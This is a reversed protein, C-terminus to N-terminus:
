HHLDDNSSKHGGGNGQNEDIFLIKLKLYNGYKPYAKLRAWLKPSTAFVM